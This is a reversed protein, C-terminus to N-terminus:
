QQREANIYKILKRLNQRYDALSIKNEELGPCLGIHYLLCARKPIQSIHTSYPFPKRLYKLARKVAVANFYPGYYQAGYDLPRRTLTVTPHPSDYDIRVYSSSKDDRLLINYRPLYRRVQEAELFLADIESEVTIWEVDTIEAVLADTKPDRYRSVQFYQRVRNRLNAAKGIYIIEGTKDKHFYVGPDKPLEALKKQLQDTM